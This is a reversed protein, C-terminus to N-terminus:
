GAKVTKVPFGISPKCGEASFESFVCSLLWLVRRAERGCFMVRQTMAETEGRDLVVELSPDGEDNEAVANWSFDTISKPCFTVTAGSSTDAEILHNM